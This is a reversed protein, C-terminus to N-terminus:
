HQGVCVISEGPAGLNPNSSFQALSFCQWRTELIFALIALFLLPLLALSM